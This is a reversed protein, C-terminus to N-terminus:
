KHLDWLIAQGDDSSSLLQKGDQLFVLDRIPGVHGVYTRPKGERWVIILGSDYGAAVRKGDLAM